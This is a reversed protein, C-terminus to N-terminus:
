GSENLAPVPEDTNEGQLAERQEAQDQAEIQAWESETPHPQERKREERLQEWSEVIKPVEKMADRNQSVWDKANAGLTRRLKVDEILLSLKEEFEKPDNFLLATEGDIIERKYPGTNQALTAAPKRLVSAEYWKIASRCDNFVNSTLPALSIDHDMMVLRLKYEQYACWDVYTYRHAPILENVWPYQAGWIIWHVEPYKATINGLAERLPFWDEYHAIGGQWLIKIKDTEQQIAVQPYHDFRMLNPFVRTRAPSTERLVAAEVAPTSCQVQDAMELVKRYSAMAQRNRAISFGKEGDRWLVKREGEEVVGIHHGIPIQNGDMDRIGLNKFAQNLPSVNFLNDDTEVIFTPPYKWEGNRKSPIFSKIGRLNNVVQEGIPQYLTIIDAECFMRVRDEAPTGADNHDIVSRIPLGLTAATDLPVQLRYYFSASHVPPILTYCVLPKM